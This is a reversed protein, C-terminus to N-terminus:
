ASVGQLRAQMQQQLEPTNPDDFALRGDELLLVRTAPQLSERLDHSSLIVTRGQRHCGALWAHLRERTPPDLGTAPEDLLLLAPRHLWARALALRQKLGRSLNRVLSRARDELAMEQLVEAGRQPPEGYLRAYFLLNEEVTLEDYLFSEHGVFGLRRRFNSDLRGAPCDDYLLEGESPQQLLALLRLLTTKGAGNRGLVVVFEGPAFTLDLRDLATFRDFFKSVKRLLIRPSTPNAPPTM